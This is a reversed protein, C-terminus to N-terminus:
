FDQLYDQLAKKAKAESPLFTGKGCRIIFKGNRKIFPWFDIYQNDAYQRKKKLFFKSIQRLSCNFESINGCL